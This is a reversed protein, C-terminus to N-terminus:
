YSLFQHDPTTRSAATRQSFCGVFRNATQFTGGGVLGHSANGIKPDIRRAPDVAGLITLERSRDNRLKGVRVQLREHAVDERLYPPLVVGSGRQAGALDDGARLSERNARHRWPSQGM